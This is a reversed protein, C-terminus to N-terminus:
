AVSVPPITAGGGGGGPSPPRNYYLSLYDVESPLDFAFEAPLERPVAIPGRRRKSPPLNNRFNDFAESFTRARGYKRDATSL